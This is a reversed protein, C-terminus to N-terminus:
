KSIYVDKIITGDGFKAGSITVGSFEKNSNYQFYYEVTLSGIEGPNLNVSSTTSLKAVNGGLINPQINSTSVNVVKDSANSIIVTTQMTEINRISNQLTFTVEDVTKSKNYPINQIFGNLAFKYNGDDLEELVITDVKTARPSLLEDRTYKSKLFDVIIYYLNGERYYSGYKPYYEEKAYLKMFDEFNSYEGFYYNKYDEKLNDYLTKYEKNNMLTVINNIVNYVNRKEATVTVNSMEQLHADANAMEETVEPRGRFFFMEFMLLIIVVGIIAVFAILEKNDVGEIKQKKNM